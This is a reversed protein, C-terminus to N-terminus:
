TRLARRGTNYGLKATILHQIHCARPKELKGKSHNSTWLTEFPPGHCASWMCTGLEREFSDSCAIYISAQMNASYRPMAHNKGIPCNFFLSIFYHSKIRNHLYLQWVLDPKQALQLPTVAKLQLAAQNLKPPESSKKSDWFNPTTTYDLRPTHTHTNM